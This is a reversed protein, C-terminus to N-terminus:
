HFRLSSRAAAMPSRGSAEPSMPLALRSVPREGSREPGEVLEVLPRNRDLVRHTEELAMPRGFHWGQMQTCGLRRMAEFEDRTETGEATTEMGLRGALAVIAQVIAVAESGGRASTQVFSRDIKIRDFPIKQLYGLSSYGTGFDDLAFSVGLAKLDALMAATQSREDLFLSETLELELREAAVNARALALRVTEVLKPDDFQLPSLNVAIRINRPWSAAARAAEHLVWAGIRSILGSEEAIPIFMAPSIEGRIPHRWRLLAEFAVVREDLANVVPQYVLRLQNLDIASKLDFELARRDEARQHMARDYARVQGRGRAKADYLALDAARMLAEVTSGDGPGLALGISAEISAHKSELDYPRSLRAILLEGIRAAEPLNAGRLVVAFEDGGLRGALAGIAGSAAGSEAVVERIRAAVEGLLRDGAGHGLSDNVAKFRDLDIFLLAVQGAMLGEALAQHVVRRNVLGTLADFTALEAIRQSARQRETVDSGVGRYGLLEGMHGFKPTGSLSWWRREGGIDVPILYDRFPQGRAVTEFLPRAAEHDSLTSRWDRGIVAEVPTGTADAFRSSVFTVRGDANIEFLWESGNTDYENLLLRVVEEQAVLQQEARVRGLLAFSTLTTGRVSMVVFGALLAQAMWFQGSGMGQLGVGVGLLVPVTLTLTGLPFVATTIAMAGIAAIATAVVLMSDSAEAVPLIDAFLLGWAIGCVAMEALLRLMFARSPRPSRGLIGRTTRLFLWRLALLVQVILWFSFVFPNALPAFAVVVIAGYFLMVPALVPLYRAVYGLQNRRVRRWFPDDEAGLTLLDRWGFRARDAAPPKFMITMPGAAWETAYVHFAGM